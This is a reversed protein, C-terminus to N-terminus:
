WNGFKIIILKYDAWEMSLIKMTSTKPWKEMTTTTAAVRFLKSKPMIPEDAEVKAHDDVNANQERDLVRGVDELKDNTADVMTRRQAERRWGEHNHTYLASIDPVLGNAPNPKAM